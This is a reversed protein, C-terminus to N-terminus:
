GQKYPIAYISVAIHHSRMKVMQVTLLEMVFGIDPSVGTVAQVCFIQPIAHQASRMLATGIVMQVTAIHILTMILAM